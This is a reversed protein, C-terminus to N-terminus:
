KGKMPKAGPARVLAEVWDDVAQRLAETVVSDLVYEEDRQRVTKGIESAVTAMGDGGLALSEDPMATGLLSVAVHQKLIQGSKGEKPPLLEREYATVKITVAFARIKKKLLWKKFKDPEAAPDPAGDLAVVFEARKAIVEGLKSKIRDTVGAPIGEAGTEVGVLNCFYKEKPKKKAVAPAALALLVVLGSLVSAATGRARM